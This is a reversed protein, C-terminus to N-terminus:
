YFWDQENELIEKIEEFNKVNIVPL